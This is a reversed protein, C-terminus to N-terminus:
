RVIFASVEDTVDISGYEAIYTRELMGRVSPVAYVAIICIAVLGAYIAVAAIWKKNM